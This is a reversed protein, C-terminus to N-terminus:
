RCDAVWQNMRSKSKLSVSLSKLQVSYLYDMQSTDLLGVESASLLGMVCQPPAVAHTHTHPHVHPYAIYTKWVRCIQRCTHGTEWDTIKKKNQERNGDINKLHGGMCSYACEVTCTASYGFWGRLRPLVDPYCARDEALAGATLQPWLGELHVMTSSSHHM